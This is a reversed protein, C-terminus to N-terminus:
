MSLRVTYFQSFWLLIKIAALILVKMKCQLEQPLLSTQGCFPCGQHPGRSYADNNNLKEYAINVRQDDNASGMVEAPAGAEHAGVGMMQWQQQWQQM